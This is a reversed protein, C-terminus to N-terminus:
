EIDAPAGADPEVADEPEAVVPLALPRVVSVRPPATDVTVVKNSRYMDAVFAGDYAELLTELAERLAEESADGRTPRVPLRIPLDFPFEVQRDEKSKWVLVWGHQDVLERVSASLYGPGVQFQAREQPTVSWQGSAVGGGLVALTAMVAGPGLLGMRKLM